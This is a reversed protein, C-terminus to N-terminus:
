WKADYLQLYENRSLKQRRHIGNGSYGNPLVKAGWEKLPNSVKQFHETSKGSGFHTEYFSNFSYGHTQMEQYVQNVFICNSKIFTLQLKYKFFSISFM